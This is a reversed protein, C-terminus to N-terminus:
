NGGERETDRCYHLWAGNGCGLCVRHGFDSAMSSNSTMQLHMVMSTNGKRNQGRAVQKQSPTSVPAENSAHCTYSSNHLEENEGSWFKKGSIQKLLSAAADVNSCSNFFAFTNGAEQVSVRQVWPLSM